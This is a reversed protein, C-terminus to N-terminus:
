ARGISDLCLAIPVRSVAGCHWVSAGNIAMRATLIAMAAPKRSNKRSSVDDCLTEIMESRCQQNKHAYVEGFDHPTVGRFELGLKDVVEILALQAAAAAVVVEYAIHVKCVDSDAVGAGKNALAEGVGFQCLAEAYVHCADLTAVACNRNGAARCSDERAVSETHRFRRASVADAQSSLALM